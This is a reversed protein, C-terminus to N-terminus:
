PREWHMGWGQAPFGLGLGTGAVHSVARLQARGTAKKESGLSDEERGPNEKPISHSTPPPYDAM